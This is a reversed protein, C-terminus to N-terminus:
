DGLLHFDKNEKTTAVEVWTMLAAAGVATLIRLVLVRFYEIMGEEGASYKFSHLVCDLFSVSPQLRDYLTWGYDVRFALYAAVAAIAICILGGKVSLKRAATHYGITITVGCIVGGLLSLVELRGLALIAIAGPIAGILGGILGPIYREKIKATFVGRNFQKYYNDAKEWSLFSFAGKLAYLETHAVVGQDDCNEADRDRLIAAGQRVMEVLKDAVEEKTGTNETTLVVRFGNSSCRVRKPFDPYDYDDDELYTYFPIPNNNISACFNVSIRPEEGKRIQGAILVTYDGYHGYGAKLKQEYGFGLAVAAQEICEEYTAM